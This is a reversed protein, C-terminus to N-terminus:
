VWLRQGWKHVNETDAIGFGQDGPKGGTPQLHQLTSAAPLTQELVQRSLLTKIHRTKERLSSGALRGFFCGHGPHRRIYALPRGLTHKDAAPSM